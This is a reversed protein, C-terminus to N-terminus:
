HRVNSYFQAKRHFRVPPLRPISKRRADTYLRAWEAQHAQIHDKAADTLENRLNRAAEVCAGWCIVELPVPAEDTELSLGSQDGYAGATPKCHDYARKAGRLYITQNSAFTLPDHLLYLTGGDQEIEGYIPRYRYPDTAARVEGTLLYGVDLIQDDSTVWTQSALTHRIANATPTITFEVVLYIRKLAENIADSWSFQTLDDSFPPLLGHLETVKSNPVGASSYVRGDTTLTGVTTSTAPAYSSVTRLKDGAAAAPM